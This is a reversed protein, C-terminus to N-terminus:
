LKWKFGYQGWHISDLSWQGLFIAPRREPKFILAHIGDMGHGV